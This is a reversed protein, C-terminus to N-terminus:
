IRDGYALNRTYEEMLEFDPIYGESSYKHTDDIIPTGDENKCIPLKIITDFVRGNKPKRGYSYKFKEQKLITCLFMANLETLDKSYLVDVDNSVAFPAKQYFADFCDGNTSVTICNKLIPIADVKTSIGNNTTTSSVFPIDGVNEPIASYKKVDIKEFLDGVKFEKWTDVKLDFKVECWFKNDEFHPVLSLYKYLSYVKSAQKSAQKSNNKELLIDGFPLNRIYEEMLEFDPVYGENSYKHSNDIIPSGDENRCVPLSLIMNEISIKGVTRGYSYKDRMEFNILTCIFNATISNIKNDRLIAINQSASFDNEQWLAVNTGVMSITICSGKNIKNSCVYGQIGNNLETRGVFPVTGIELSGFDNSKAICVEFMKGVRFDKWNTTDLYKKTLPKNKTTIPKYHLSMIYEEMFKFDPIYGESSYKHTDDIIPQGNTDKCIPLKISIEDLHQRYKRGYSFKYKEKDLISVLFMANLANLKKDYGVSLTTSGIFDCDIYNTYGVSGEGDCIFLIGNGKSVLQPVIKVRKMVGNDSKKAGIYNLDNGDDLDGANKCKCPYIDFLGSHSNSRSIFFEKWDAVNLNMFM